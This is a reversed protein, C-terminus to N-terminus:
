ILFIINGVVWWVTKFSIQIRNMTFTVNAVNYEWKIIIITDKNIPSHATLM